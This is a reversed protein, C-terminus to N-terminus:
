WHEPTELHDFVFRIGHRCIGAWVRGTAVGFAWARRPSDLAQLEADVLDMDVVRADHKELAPALLFTPTVERGLASRSDDVSAYMIFHITRQPQFDLVRRVAALAHEALHLIASAHPLDADIASMWLAAGDFRFPEYDLPIHHAAKDM